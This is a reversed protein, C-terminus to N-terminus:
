GSCRPASIRAGTRGACGAARSADAVCICAKSARRMFGSKSCRSPNPYVPCKRRISSSRCISLYPRSQGNPERGFFNTRNTACIVGLFQRLIRDEDLNPVQDLAAEIDALMREAARERDDLSGGRAPDFRVMFLEVFKKAIAPNCTLAREIYADSFTSGVQRLYKAYARMITVDRAGFQARLMLRNFDDNETEGSWLSAFANEFLSKVRDIDFEVDDQLELGFDHIWANPAGTPEILYPREEDVRVGLHELMPLSHSLAIPDGVRYVKFRFARKKTDIGSEIPRYLSMAIGGTGQHTSEILEIDRVAIRAPYDERYGAPFSDAYRQLLRNGAEEGHSDILADARDDQWRRSVQVVRAELELTDVEPMAGKDVRVVIHIRALPSESLLPTFEISRGNFAEMLVKSIRRRLDTNFKDRLVFVLCSVFRDFRDRRVFLRTRQHEQLRLVGIAIDFLVDEGAQFLEDRPYQELVTVLSKHLHGKELFGARRVINACKRRMIPIEATSVFYATSMYLGLFRREGIVKGDPSTRKVGVYDLYGPRHVTARSNAKTLFIPEADEIIAAASPPLPTVDGGAPPRHTERLIGLGSGAIGRLAPAGEHDILEYDRCGLFTFHDNIM